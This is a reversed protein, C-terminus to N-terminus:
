LTGIEKLANRLSKETDYKDLLDRYSNDRIRQLDAEGAKKIIDIVRRYDEEDGYGCLFGNYGDETQEHLGDINSNVAILGTNRAMYRAEISTLGFPENKSLYLNILTNKYQWLCPPLTLSLKSLFSYNAIGYSRILDKLRDIYPDNEYYSFGQIVLHLGEIEQNMLNFFRITEEIGKVPDIRGVFTVLKKDLPINYKILEDEIEGDTRYKFRPNEKAITCKMPVLVKEDVGYDEILHRKFYDSVYGIKFTNKSLFSTKEYEERGKINTKHCIETSHPISIIKIKGGMLDLYKSVGLFVTDNAFVYVNEYDKKSM